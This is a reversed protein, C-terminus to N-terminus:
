VNMELRLGGIKRKIEYLLSTESSFGQSREYADQIDRTIQIKASVVPNHNAVREAGRITAYGKPNGVITGQCDFIFFNQNKM